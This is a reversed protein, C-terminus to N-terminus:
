FLIFFVDIGNSHSRTRMQSTEQDRSGIGSLDFHEVYSAPLSTGLAPFAAHYRYFM